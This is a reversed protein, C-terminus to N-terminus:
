GERGLSGGDGLDGSAQVQGVPGHAVVHRGDGALGPGAVPDVRDADRLSLAPESRRRSSAPTWNGVLDRYLASSRMLEEHGGCATNPGDMVLVRGARRASSIRHAVVVLTGGPRAAFAREAREETEPDLHCTAEDLLALPANSLYARTLAVLQREGASLAAPDIWAGLGGLRGALPALGVAEAAALLEDETVRDPRLYALNEALTGGFVYAEQPILVRAAVAEPGPVAHGGVTITGRDPTLLGAVLATLTSKGTGSPGVVALHSGQPLSLDLDQVVPTSAPGYAFTVSSLSLAPPVDASRGGGPGALRATAADRPTATADSPCSRTRHTDADAPYPPRNRHPTGPPSSPQNPHTTDTGALSPPRDPRTTGVPPLPGNPYATATPSTGADPRSPPGDRHPTAAHDTGTAPLAPADPHAADGAGPDTATPALRRLVVTLRSGSTGLGHILNRLAPLLSQTVYALAGVLAGTTVGGHTLLWPAAALLLVIPVQGGLALSAVRLVGWHALARAARLEAEVREGTAAAIHAEAGTAAIDRLGPCVAGLQGALAEDAVLFTEQRRALPRLTAAFLVVGAALPPGVVLLLPPALTFLGALAGAATFVFSRSVMVLGAFTDRAIEVQQTLGSLCGADGTRVGRSVVREVLRDRFPEVLAAVAAYVRATGYSGILVGLGTVALWILGAEPRGRLFGDDLARAPGYGLLFTQGTELVSWATLRLLVRRRDLLFRLGRAPIGTATM